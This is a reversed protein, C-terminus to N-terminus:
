LNPICVLDDGIYLRKLQGDKTREEKIKEQKSKTIFVTNKKESM